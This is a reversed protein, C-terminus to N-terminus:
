AKIGLTQEVARVLRVANNSPRDIGYPGSECSMRVTGRPEAHTLAIAEDAADAEVLMAVAGAGQTQEGSSGRESAFVVTSATRLRLPRFGSMGGSSPQAPGSMSGGAMGDHKMASPAPKKKDKAMQDHGAMMGGSM